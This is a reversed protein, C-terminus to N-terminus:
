RSDKVEVTVASTKFVKDAVVGGGDLTIKVEPIEAEWAHFQNMNKPCGSQKRTEAKPNWIYGEPVGGKAWSELVEVKLMIRLIAHKERTGKDKKPDCQIYQVDSM